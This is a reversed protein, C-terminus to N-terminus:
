RHDGKGGLECSLPAAARITKNQVYPTAEDNNPKAIGSPTVETLWPAQSSACLSAFLKIVTTTTYKKKKKIVTTTTYYHPSQSYQLTCHQKLEDLHM